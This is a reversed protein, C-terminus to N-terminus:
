RCVKRSNSRKLSSSTQDPGSNGRDLPESKIDRGPQQLRLDVGHTPPGSEGERGRKQGIPVGFLRSSLEEAASKMDNVAEIDNSPESVATTDTEACFRTMPLLDLPKVPNDEWSLRRRHHEQRGNSSNSSKNSSFNSMLNCISHCMNKMQCIEKNLQVNQKRLRENEGILEANNGDLERVLSPSDSSSLVQEDGSNSPSVAPTTGASTPLLVIAPSSATAATVPSPTAIKRRQIDSLLNKEGRRFCDNSFEWRDPVLKRFGYTNLQRVFSSFNNHKFYKPLLDRSFETQNWVVFGSGDENWSIVDDVAHDDVLHYTKTLFPTPLSRATSECGGRRAM